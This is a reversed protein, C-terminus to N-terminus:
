TASNRNYPISNNSGCPVAISCPQTFLAPLIITLQVPLVLFAVKTYKTASFIDDFKKKLLQGEGLPWNSDEQHVFIVNELVAQLCLSTSGQRQPEDHYRPSLLHLAALLPVKSVGMLQPVIRDMDQCRYSLAEKQGTDQNHTQM